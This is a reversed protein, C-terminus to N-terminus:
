KKELQDIAEAILKAQEVDMIVTNGDDDTITVKGDTPIRLVPCKEKRCCLMIGDDQKKLKM